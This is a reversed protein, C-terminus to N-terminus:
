ELHFSIKPNEYFSHISQLYLNTFTQNEILDDFVERVRLFSLPDETTKKAVLHLQDKLYDIEADTRVPTIRDVMSNQFAVEKEVWSALDKDQIYLFSLLM